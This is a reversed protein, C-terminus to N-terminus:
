RAHLKWPPDSDAPNPPCTINTPYSLGVPDNAQFIADSWGANVAACEAANARPGPYCSIAVPETAILKGGLTFNFAKWIAAQHGVSNALYRSYRLKLFGERRTFRVCRCGDGAARKAADAHVENEGITDNLAASLFSPDAYQDSPAEDVSAPEQPVAQVYALLVTILFLLNFSRTVM